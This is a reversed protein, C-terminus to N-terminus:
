KSKSAKGQKQKSAQKQKSKSAKAQKGSPHASTGGESGRPGPRSRDGRRAVGKFVRFVSVISFGLKAADRSGHVERKGLKPEVKAKAKVKGKVM